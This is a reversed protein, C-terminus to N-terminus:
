IHYSFLVINEQGKGTLGTLCLSLLTYFQTEAVTGPWYGSCGLYLFIYLLSSAHEQSSEATALDWRRHFIFIVSGGGGFPHFVSCLRQSSQVFPSTYASPSRSLCVGHELCVSSGPFGWTTPFGPRVLLCLIHPPNPPFGRCDPGLSLISCPGKPGTLPHCLSYQQCTLHCPAPTAMSLILTWLSTYAYDPAVWCLQLSCRLVRM